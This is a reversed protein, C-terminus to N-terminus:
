NSFYKALVAARAGAINSTPKMKKQARPPDSRVARPASDAGATMVAAKSPLPVSRPPPAAAEAPASARDFLLKKVYAAPVGDAHMKKVEEAIGMQAAKWSDQMNLFSMAPNRPDELDGILDGFATIQEETAAELETKISSIFSDMEAAEQKEIYSTHSKQLEELQSTLSENTSTLGQLKADAEEYKSKLALHGESMEDNNFADEYIQSLYKRDEAAQALQAEYYSGYKEAWPRINEPLAGLASSATSHDGWGFSEYTIEPASEEVQPAEPPM